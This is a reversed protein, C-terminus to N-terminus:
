LRQFTRAFLLPARFSSSLWHWELRWFSQKVICRLSFKPLSMWAWYLTVSKLFCVSDSWKWEWPWHSILPSDSSNQTTTLIRLHCLGRHSQLLLAYPVDNISMQYHGCAWLFSNIFICTCFFTFSLNQMPNTLQIYTRRFFGQLILHISLITHQSEPAIGVNVLRLGSQWCILSGATSLVGCILCRYVYLGQM